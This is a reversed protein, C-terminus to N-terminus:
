QFVKYLIKRMLNPQWNYKIPEYSGVSKIKEIYANINREQNFTAECHEYDVKWTEYPKNKIKEMCEKITPAKFFPDGYLEDGVNGFNLQSAFGACISQDFKLFDPNALAVVTPLGCSLLEIFSTGMGYGIDYKKMEENLKHYAVGGHLFVRSSSLLEGFKDNVFASSGAGYIHFEYAENMRIFELMSIIAPIKFDVLRGLWVVKVKSSPNYNFKVDKMSVVPLPIVDNLSELSITSQKCAVNMFIASRNALLNDVLFKNESRAKNNTYSPATIRINRKVKSYLSESGYLIDLPHLFLHCLKAYGKPKIYLFENVTILDELFFTVIVAKDQIVSSLFNLYKTQKGESCYLYKTEDDYSKVNDKESLSEFIFSEKRCIVTVQYEQSILKEYMRLLLTEGGGLYSNTNILYIMNTNIVRM